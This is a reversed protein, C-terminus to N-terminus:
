QADGHFGAKEAVSLQGFGYFASRAAAAARANESYSADEIEAAGHHQRPPESQALVPFASYLVTGRVKQHHHPLASHWHGSRPVAPRTAADHAMSSPPVGVGYPEREFQGRDVISLRREVIHVVGRRGSPVLPDSQFRHHPPDGHVSRLDDSWLLHVGM